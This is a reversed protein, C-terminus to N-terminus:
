RQKLIHQCVNYGGVGGSMEGGYCDLCGTAVLVVSVVRCAIVLITVHVIALSSQLSAFLMLSRVVNPLRRTFVIM